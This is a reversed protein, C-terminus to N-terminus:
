LAATRAASGPGRASPDPFCGCAVARCWSLPLGPAAGVSLEPDESGSAEVSTCANPVTGAPDSSYKLFQLLASFLTNVDGTLFGTKSSFRTSKQTSATCQSELTEQFKLLRPTPGRPAGGAVWAAKQSVLAQIDGEIEGTATLLVQTCKSIVLLTKPCRAERAGCLFSM